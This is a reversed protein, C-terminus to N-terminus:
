HPASREDRDSAVFSTTVGADIASAALHAPTGVRPRRAGESAAADILRHAPAHAAAADGSAGACRDAAGRRPRHGHPLEGGSLQRVACPQRQARHEGGAADGHAPRLDRCQRRRRLHRPLELDCLPRRFRDGGRRQGLPSDIGLGLPASLAASFDVATGHSDAIVAGGSSVTTIELNPTQQGSSVTYDFVLAGSGASSRAADYLATGGNNLILTPSGGSTNVSVPQSFDVELTVSTGPGANGFQSPFVNTVFAAGVQVNTATGIAASVNANFGGSEITTASGLDVAFVTLNPTQEGGSVVYDFVLTTPTSSSSDYFATGGDDLALTLGGSAGSTVSVPHNLTMSIHATGGLSIEQGTKDSTVSTVTVPSNVSLGTPLNFMASLVPVQGGSAIKGSAANFGTIELDATHQASTVTYDFVLTANSPQSAAADYKAMGSDNLTFTPTGTVVVPRDFTLQFQVLTGTSVSGFPQSIAATLLTPGASSLPDFFYKQSNLADAIAAPANLFGFGQTNAPEGDSIATFNMFNGLRVPNGELQPNADMMLAAVAAAAPAAASTGFFPNLPSGRPLLFSTPAGDPATVDPKASTTGISSFPETLEQLYSNMLSPPNSVALWNAAAVTEVHPNANHGFINFAPIGNAGLRLNGAASFYSIGSQVAADIALNAAGAPDSPEPVLGQQPTGSFLGLDDVIIQVHQAQLRQRGPAFAAVNNMQPEVRPTQFVITAGPAIAHIIEAMARGEDHGSGVVVKGAALDIINNASPLLGNKIDALAPGATIPNEKGTAPNLNFSDSIIGIKIGAGTLFQGGLGSSQNLGMAQAIPSGSSLTLTTYNSVGSGGSSV